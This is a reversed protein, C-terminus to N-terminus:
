VGLRALADVADIVVRSQVRVVREIQLPESGCGGRGGRGYRVVHQVLQSALVHGQPVGRRRRELAHEVGGDAARLFTNAVAVVTVRASGFVDVVVVVVVFGVRPLRGRAEGRVGFIRFSFLVVDDDGREAVHHHAHHRGADASKEARGILRRARLRNAREAFEGLRRRRRRRARERGEGVGGVRLLIEEGVGRVQLRVAPRSRQTQEGGDRHLGGVQVLLRELRRRVLARGFLLRFYKQGRADDDPVQRRQRRSREAVGACVDGARSRRSHASQRARQRPARVPVQKVGRQALRGRTAASPVPAPVVDLARLRQVDARRSHNEFAEVLKIEVGLQPRLALRARGRDRGVDDPSEYM